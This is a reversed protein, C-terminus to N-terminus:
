KKKKERLYIRGTFLHKSTCHGYLSSSFFRSSSRGGGRRRQGSPRKPSPTSFVFFLIDFNHAYNKTGKEFYFLFFGRGVVQALIYSNESKDAV